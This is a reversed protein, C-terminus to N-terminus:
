GRWSSPTLTTFRMAAISGLAGFEGTRCKDGESVILSDPVLGPLSEGAIGISYDRSPTTVSVSVLELVGSACGRTGRRM